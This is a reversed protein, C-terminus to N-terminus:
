LNHCWSLLAITFNRSMPEITIKPYLQFISTWCKDQKFSKIKLSCFMSLEESNTAHKMEKCNSESWLICVNTHFKLTELRTNRNWQYGRYWGIMLRQMQQKLHLSLMRTILKVVFVYTWKFDRSFYLRVFDVLTCQGSILPMRGDDSTLRFHTSIFM